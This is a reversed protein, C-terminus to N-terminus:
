ELRLEELKKWRPDPASEHQHEPGVDRLAVACIPCLGPCDVTCLIQEPAALAFADHAWANVDLLEGELYPSDLEDGGGPMDVERADVTIQPSAETLCRMCPGALSGEFRLRLAYGGGTMRSVDLTASARRPQATYREGALGLADLDVEIDLHRGEGAHLRLASVDFIDTQAV